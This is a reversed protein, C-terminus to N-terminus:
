KENKYAEYIEEMHNDAVHIGESYKVTSMATLGYKEAISDYETSEVQKENVYCTSTDNDFVTVSETADKCIAEGNEMSYYLISHSIQSDTVSENETIFINGKKLYSFGGYQGFYEQNQASIQIAEGDKITYLYGGDMQTDGLIIVMEKIDDDNLHIFAVSFDTKGELLYTQIVNVYLDVQSKEDKGNEINVETEDTTQEQEYVTSQQKSTELKTIDKKKDEKGCASM